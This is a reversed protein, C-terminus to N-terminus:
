RKRPGAGSVGVGGHSNSEPALTTQFAITAKIAMGAWSEEARELRYGGVLMGKKRKKEEQAPRTGEQTASCCPPVAKQKSPNVPREVLGFRAAQGYCARLARMCPATGLNRTLFAAAPMEDALMRGRGRQLAWEDGPLALGVAVGECWKLV